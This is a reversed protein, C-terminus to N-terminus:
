SSSALEKMGDLKNQHQYKKRISHLMLMKRAKGVVARKHFVDYRNDQVVDLIAQYYRAALEVCFASQGPYTHLRSLGQALWDNSLQMLSEITATFSENITKSQLDAETYGHEQMLQLPIYRRGRAMDEGVDRIINTIQMAKGLAIGAEIDAQHPQQHLVPMLMEGVTGAVLYCYEELEEITDYHTKVYDMRQGKMQRYFPAREARPFTQFLWRLAPWIFHGKTDQLHDLGRELQELTFPSTEPEDVADDILRCFAYIVYVANKQTEPLFSFARHFTSSGRKIFQECQEFIAEM